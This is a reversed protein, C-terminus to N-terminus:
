VEGEMPITLVAIVYGVSVLFFSPFLLILCVLRIITPDINFYEGIGGCVGAIRRNEISRTLKKM